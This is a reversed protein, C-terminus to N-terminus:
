DLYKHRCARPEVATVLHTNHLRDVTCRSALLPYRKELLNTPIQISLDFRRDCLQQIQTAKLNSFRQNIRDLIVFDNGTRQYKYFEITM